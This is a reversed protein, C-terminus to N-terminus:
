EPRGDPCATNRCAGNSLPKNCEPCNDKPVLKELTHCLIERQKESLKTFDRKGPVREAESKGKPIFSTLEEVKDLAAKRDTGYIAHLASKIRAIHPDEDAPPAAPKPAPPTAAKGNTADLADHEVIEFAALWLYRRLYSQVAGLNQIAHCGKLEATSMPSCFIIAEEPKDTNVITLTAVDGFSVVGCLGIEHCIYNIHPLFDGLEMYTYNAYTNKGSEKLPLAQLKVRADQLKKYVNM